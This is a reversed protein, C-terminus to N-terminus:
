HSCPSQHYSWLQLSHWCAYHCNTHIYCVYEHYMTSCTDITFGGLSISIYVERCLVSELAWTFLKLINQVESFLVVERCPVCGSFEDQEWHTRQKSTKTYHLGGNISWIELMGEYRLGPVVQSSPDQVL